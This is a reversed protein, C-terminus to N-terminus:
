GRSNNITNIISINKNANSLTIYSKKWNSRYNISNNKLKKSKGKIILTRVKIVKVNFLKSITDKIELKNANISVVFVITNNKETIVSSKESSYPNRLIQFLRTKNIM